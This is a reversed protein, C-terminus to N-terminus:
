DIYGLSKLKARVLEMDELTLERDVPLGALPHLAKGWSVREWVREHFYYLIVRIGHFIVTITAMEKWSKTILYTIGGLLVIGLIRWTISKVWSRVQTDM